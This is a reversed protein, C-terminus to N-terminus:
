RIEQQREGNKVVTRWQSKPLKNGNEYVLFVDDGHVLYGKQALAFMPEDSWSDSYYSLLPTSGYARKYAEVKKAGYCHVGNRKMTKPDLDTGICTVGLRKAAQEVEFQPSATVILDDDRRQELYWAKIHKFNKDWFREVVKQRNPVFLLFGELANLFANKSLIRLAYLISVVLDVLLYLTLYPFRLMCYFFLRQVSNGQLITKDFDYGNM